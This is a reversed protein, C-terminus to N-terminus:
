SFLFPGFTIRQNRYLQGSANPFYYNGAYEVWANDKRLVGRQFNIDDFLYLNNSLERVGLYAAGDDGMYHSINPGFTIWCNKYLKGELNPFYYGTELDVWKNDTRSKGSDDLLYLNNAYHVIQNIVKEGDENLYYLNGSGFTIGQNRYLVGDANPFYWKGDNEVWANDQRYEGTEVNVM